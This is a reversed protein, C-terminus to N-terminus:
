ILASPQQGGRAAGRPAAGKRHLLGGPQRVHRDMKKHSRYKAYGCHRPKKRTGRNLPMDHTTRRAHSATTAELAFAGKLVWRQPDVIALRALFREFTVRKRLRM